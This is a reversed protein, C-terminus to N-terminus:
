CVTCLRQFLCGVWCVYMISMYGKIEEIYKKYSMAKKSVKGHNIVYLIWYFTNRLEVARGESPGSEAKNVM